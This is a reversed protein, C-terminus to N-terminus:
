LPRRPPEVDFSKVWSIIKLSAGMYPDQVKLLATSNLIARKLASALTGEFFDTLWRESLPM